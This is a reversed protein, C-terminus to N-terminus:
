AAEKMLEAAEDPHKDFLYSIAQNLEKRARLMEALGLEPHEDFFMADNIHGQATLLKERINM